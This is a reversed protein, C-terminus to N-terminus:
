LGPSTIRNLNEQITLLLWGVEYDKYEEQGGFQAIAKAMQETLATDKFIWKIIM